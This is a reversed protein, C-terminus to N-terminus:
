ASSWSRIIREVANQLDALRRAGLEDRLRKEITAITRLGADICRHGKATLVVLKSRRDGPHPTRRVYGLKELDDILEGMAQPTMNARTALDSPRTGERDINAFVASHAPRQPFGAAVVGRVIDMGLAQYAAGLLAATNPGRRPQAQGRGGAAINDPM